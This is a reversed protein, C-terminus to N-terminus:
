LVAMATLERKSVHPILPWFDNLNMSIVGSVTFFAISPPIVKMRLLSFDFM